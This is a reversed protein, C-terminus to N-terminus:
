RGKGNISTFINIIEIESFYIKLVSIFQDIKILDLNFSLLQDAGLRGEQIQRSDQYKLQHQERKNWWLDM